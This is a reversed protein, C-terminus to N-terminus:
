IYFRLSIVKCFNVMNRSNYFHILLMNKQHTVVTVTTIGYNMKAKRHFLDIFTLLIRQDKTQYFTLEGVENWIVPLM